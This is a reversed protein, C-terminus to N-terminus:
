RKCSQEKTFPIQVSVTTGRGPASKIAFRGNVLRVREQMGLLGLRKKVNGALQRDVEFAQGDDKIQLELERNIKCLSVAVHRAHAHKAVNTLSEQTIRFVVTKQEDDLEEAQASGQFRVRLGTRETFCKLYCRLAPLLGLEDLMAPRLERAFRHVTEMTQQLLGQANSIRKKLSEGHMAGNTQLLTLNTNVATLAQGVEDHLERSIRKREEEQAHLIQNSLSRLNEQMVSAQNFLVRYHERSRRLEENRHELVDNLQHLRLNAQRFGRHAAEFPSLMELFFTEAAKLTDREKADSSIPRLCGALARQHIRAMDLVGLGEAIAKRGLEYAQQLLAEQQRQAYHRLVGAYQRTLAPLQSNM